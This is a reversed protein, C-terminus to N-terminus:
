VKKGRLRLSNVIVSVSSLSMAAAAWVPSILGGGLPVLLGAAIPIALVNYGFALWLNQRITHVTALGLRRAAAIARLDPSVLTVGATTKAVDSGTGVAVGVDAAALAPADNVGDGAMAVTQGENQLKRVVSYKEAPLTEAVVDEIGMQHAVAKATDPHDGSVVVLKLGVARLEKVAEASTPRVPDQVVILGVCRDGVGVMMVGQGNIRHKACESIMMERHMGSEHLFLRTGVAVRKGNVTGRVGKSPVAQVDTAIQITLNRHSAEWVVALGLPHECGREVAAALALVEDAGEGINPTVAVLKPKGTTLTGTKDFLVATVRTIREIAAADRFLVGQKTARGVGVVVAFPTALGLACPCAIILVGVGCVLGYTMWNDTLLRNCDGDTRFYGVTLWVLVTILAAALVAPVFWRAIRDVTRQLPVRSRQAKGVLHVVHALVTDASAKSVQVVLHGLGNQTGAVVSQGVTREVPVSEGTLASEDLASTGEVITGDVPVREGPKVRVQEGPEVLELPLLDEGGDARVVRATPPTLTLLKRVAEGTRRRARLEMVQGVLVLVVIGAATEFFPLVLGGHHTSILSLAQKVGEDAVAQGAQPVQAEPSVGFLNYALAALSYGTAALVGTTVLTFMNISRNRISQWGRALLPWGCWFVVPLALAAQVILLTRAGVLSSLPHDPVIVDALAVAMLPVTFAVGVWMRRTMDILEPEPRDDLTGAAPELTMGCKPCPALTNAEVEPCMPCVYKIVSPDPMGTLLVDPTLYKDPQRKFRRRCAEACFCYTTGDHVHTGGPTTETPVAMNCVPDTASTHAAMGLPSPPTPNM